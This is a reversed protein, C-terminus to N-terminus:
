RQRELVAIRKVTARILCDQGALGAASGGADARAALRCEQDRRAAWRRQDSALRPRREAALRALADRLDAALRANEYALEARQCDNVSATVGAARDLCAGYDAPGFFAALVMALPLM